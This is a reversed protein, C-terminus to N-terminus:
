SREKENKNRRIDKSVGAFPFIRLLRYFASKYLRLLM